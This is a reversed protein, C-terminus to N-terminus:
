SWLDPASFCPPSYSTPFSIGGMSSLSWKARHLALFLSFLVFYGETGIDEWSTIFSCLLCTPTLPIPVPISSSNPWSFLDSFPFLVQVQILVYYWLQHINWYYGLGFLSTFIGSLLMGALLYYRVPLREGFIGSFFIFWKIEFFIGTMAWIQWGVWLEYRTEEGARGVM